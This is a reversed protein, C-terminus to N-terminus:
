KTVNFHILIISIIFSSRCPKEEAFGYAELDGGSETSWSCSRRMLTSKYLSKNALLPSTRSSSWGASSRCPGEIDRTNSPLIDTPKSRQRGFRNSMWTGGKKKKKGKEQQEQLLISSKPNIMQKKFGTIPNNAQDPDSPKSHDAHLQRLRNSCHSRRKPSIKILLPKQQNKHLSIETFNQNHSQPDKRLDFLPLLLVLVNSAKCSPLKASPHHSFRLRELFIALFRFCFNLFFFHLSLCSSPSHPPIQKKETQRLKWPFAPPHLTPDQSSNSLRHLRLNLEVSSQLFPLLMMSFAMAMDSFNQLFPELFSFPASCLGNTTKDQMKRQWVICQLHNQDPKWPARQQGFPTDAVFPSAYNACVM